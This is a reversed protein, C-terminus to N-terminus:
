LREGVVLSFTAEKLQLRIKEKADNELDAGVRSFEAAVEAIQDVYGMGMGECVKGGGCCGVCGGWGRRTRRGWGLWCLRTGERQQRWWAGRSRRVSASSPGGCCSRLM